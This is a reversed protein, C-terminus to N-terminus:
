VYWLIEDDRVKAVLYEPKSKSVSVVQKLLTRCPRVRRLRIRFLGKEKLEAIRM